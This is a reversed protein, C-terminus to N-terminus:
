RWSELHATQLCYGHGLAVSPTRVAGKFHDPYEDLSLHIFIVISRSARPLFEIVEHEGTAATPQGGRGDVPPCSTISHKGRAQMM